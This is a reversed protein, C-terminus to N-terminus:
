KYYIAPSNTDKSWMGGEKLYEVYRSFDPNATMKKKKWKGEFLSFLPHVSKGGKKGKVQQQQQQQKQHKPKSNNNKAGPVSTEFGPKKWSSGFLMSAPVSTVRKLMVHDQDHINDVTTSEDLLRDYGGGRNSRRTSLARFLAM